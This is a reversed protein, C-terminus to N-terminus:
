MTSPNRSTSAAMAWDWWLLAWATGLALAGLVDSPYHVGLYVRSSALLPPIALAAAVFWPRWRATVTGALLLLPLSWLVPALMAHGSPYSYWGASGLKEIVDPRPRQFGAKALVYVVEGLVGALVVAGGWRGRGRAWLLGAMGLAVPVEFAGDGLFTLHVMVETLLPTRVEGIWRLVAEDLAHTVGAVVLLSLGVFLSLAAFPRPALLSRPHM